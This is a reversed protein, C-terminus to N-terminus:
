PVMQIYNELRQLVFRSRGLELILYELDLPDECRALHFWSALHCQSEQLCSLQDISHRCWQPDLPQPAPVQLL